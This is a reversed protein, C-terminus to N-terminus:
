RVFQKFGFIYKNYAENIQAQLDTKSINSFTEKSAQILYYFGCLIMALFIFSLISSPKM